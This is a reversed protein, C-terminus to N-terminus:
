CQWYNHIVKPQCHLLHCSFLCKNVIIDFVSLSKVSKLVVLAGNNSRIIYMGTAYIYVAIKDM